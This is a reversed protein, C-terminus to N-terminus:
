RSTLFECLYEQAIKRKAMNRCESDFWSQKRDPHVSWSLITPHFDNIQDVADSYTKHFWNGVGIRLLFHLVVVTRTSITPKVATWLQEMGDIHAAEDIVLLSLSESRGHMM